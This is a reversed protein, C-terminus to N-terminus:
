LQPQVGGGSKHRGGGGGDGPGGGGGGGVWMFVCQGNIHLVIEAVVKLGDIGQGSGRM